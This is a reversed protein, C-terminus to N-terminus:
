KTTKKDCMHLPGYLLLINHRLSCCSGGTRATSFNLLLKLLTSNQAATTQRAARAVQARREVQWGRSRTKFWDGGRQWHHPVDPASAATSLSLPLGGAPGLGSRWRSAAQGEGEQVRQHRQRGAEDLWIGAWEDWGRGPNSCFCAVCVTSYIYVLDLCAWAQLVAGHKRILSM